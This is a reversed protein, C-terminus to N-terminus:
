RLFDFDGGPVFCGFSVNLFALGCVCKIQFDLGAVQYLGVLNDLFGFWFCM